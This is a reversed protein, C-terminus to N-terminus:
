GGEEERKGKDCGRGMERCKGGRKDGGRDGVGTAGGAAMLLFGVM